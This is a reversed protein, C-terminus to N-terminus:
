HKKTLAETKIQPTTPTSTVAPPSRALIERRAPQQRLPAGLGPSTQAGSKVGTGRGVPDELHAVLLLKLLVLAFAEAHHCVCRLELSDLLGLVLDTVYAGRGRRYWVSGSGKRTGERGAQCIPSLGRSLGPRCGSSCLSPFLTPNGSIKERHTGSEGKAGSQGCLM